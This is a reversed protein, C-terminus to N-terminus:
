LGGVEVREGHRRYADLRALLRQLHREVAFHDAHRRRQRIAHPGARQADEDRLAVGADGRAVVVSTLQSDYGARRDRDKLRSDDRHLSLLQPVKAYFSTARSWPGEDCAGRSSM